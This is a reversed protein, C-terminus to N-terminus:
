KLRFLTFYPSEAICELNIIHKKYLKLAEARGDVLVLCGFALHPIIHFLDGNPFSATPGDVLVFDFPGCETPLSTYGSLTQSPSIYDLFFTRVPSHLIKIKKQLNQPIITNALSCYKEDQELTTLKGQAPLADAIFAASAGIGTGLELTNKPRFERILRWLKKANRFAIIRAGDPSESFRKYLARLRRERPNCARAIRYLRKKIRKWLNPTNM